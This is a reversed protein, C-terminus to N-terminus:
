KKKVVMILNVLILIYAVLSLAYGIVYFLGHNISFLFHVNGFFLLAFAVPVLLNRFQKNKLYHVLYYVFVYLILISSLIYFLSLTNFCFLLPVLTLILLLFYTKQSKIRLTMYTLTVLGLIFFVICAYLSINHLLTVSSFEVMLDATRETLERFFVFNLFSYILYSLSIFLFSASFIKLQEKGIIRYIKYAYYSVILTILAFVFQLIVDYGLFWAPVFYMHTM